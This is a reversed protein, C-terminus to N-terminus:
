DDTVKYIANLTVLLDRNYLIDASSFGYFICGTLNQSAHQYMDKLYPVGFGSVRPAKFVMWGHDRALTADYVSPNTLYLITKIQRGLSIDIARWNLVTNSYIQADVFITVSFRVSVSYTLELM